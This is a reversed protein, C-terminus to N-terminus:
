RKADFVWYTGVTAAYESPLVTIQNHAMMISYNHDSNGSVYCAGSNDFCFLNLDNYEVTKNILIDVKYGANDEDKKINMYSSDSDGIYWKGLYRDVTINSNSTELLTSNQINTNEDAKDLNSSFDSTEENTIERNDNDVLKSTFSITDTAFLVCLFILIFIVIGMLMVTGNKNNEELKIMREFKM